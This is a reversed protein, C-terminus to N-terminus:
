SFVPSSPNTVATGFKETKLVPFPFPLITTTFAVSSAPALLLIRVIGLVRIHRLHQRLRLAWLLRGFSPAILRRNLRRLNLLGLRRTLRGLFRLWSVSRAVASAVFQCLRRNRAVMTSRIAYFAARFRAPNKAYNIAKTAQNSQNYTSGVSHVLIM